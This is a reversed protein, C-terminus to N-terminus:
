VRNLVPNHFVPAVHFLHPVVCEEIGQAHIWFLVGNNDALCRHVWPLVPFPHDLHQKFLEADWSRVNDDLSDHRQIRVAARSTGHQVAPITHRMHHRDVFAEGHGMRNLSQIQGASVEGLVHDLDQRLTTHGHDRGRLLLDDSVHLLCAAIKDGVVISTGQLGSLLSWGIELLNVLEWVPVLHVQHSLTEAHWLHHEVGHYSPSLQWTHVM